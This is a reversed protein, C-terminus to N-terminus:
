INRRAKDNEVRRMRKLDPRKRIVLVCTYLDVEERMWQDPSADISPSEDIAM